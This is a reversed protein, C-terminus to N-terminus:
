RPTWGAATPVTRTRRFGRRAWGCLASSRSGRADSQGTGRALGSDALQGTAVPPEWGFRGDAGAPRRWRTSPSEGPLRTRTSGFSSGPKHRTSSRGDRPRGRVLPSVSGPSRTHPEPRAVQVLRSRLWPSARRVGFRLWIRDRAVGRAIHIREPAAAKAAARQQDDGAGSRPHISLNKEVPGLRVAEPSLK